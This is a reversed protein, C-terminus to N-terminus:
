PKSIQEVPPRGSVNVTLRNEILAGAALRYRPAVSRQHEHRSLDHQEHQIPAGMLEGRRAMVGFNATSTDCARELLDQSGVTATV